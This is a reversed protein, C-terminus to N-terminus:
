AKKSRRRAVGAVVSGLGLALIGASLPPANPSVDCSASAQGGAGASASCTGGDCGANAYAWGSVEIHFLNKLDNVCANADQANIFQGNCFIAANANCSTECGGQLKATCGANANAQCMVDCSLNAQGSCSGQCSAQCEAMCTASPPVAKCSANCRFGCSAKCESTCQEMNSNGSCESSCNGECTGECDASCNVSGTTGSCNGTCNGMCTGQCSPLTANCGGSCSAELQASCAVTLQPPSCAATCGGSAMVTCTETGDFVAGGCDSLLDARASAAGFTVIGGFAVALLSSWSSM